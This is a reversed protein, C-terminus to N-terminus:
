QGARGLNDVEGTCTDIARLLTEWSASADVELWKSLMANCRKKVSRPNDEEIVSLDGNSLNLQIGIERWNTAYTPTVYRQLDKEAPRTKALCNFNKYLSANRYIPLSGKDPGKFRALICNLGSGEAM